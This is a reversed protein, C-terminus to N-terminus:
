NVNSLGGHRSEYRIKVYRTQAPTLHKSRQLLSLSDVDPTLTICKTLLNLVEALEELLLCWETDRISLELEFMHAPHEADVLLFMLKQPM